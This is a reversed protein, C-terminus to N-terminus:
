DCSNTVLESHGISRNQNLQQLQQWRIAEESQNRLIKALMRFEGVKVTVGTASKAGFAKLIKARDMEVTRQSVALRSAITKNPLGNILLDLVRQRRPSLLEMTQRYEEYKGNLDFQTQRRHVALSVFGALTEFSFPRNLLAITGPNVMELAYNAQDRDFILVTPLDLPPFSWSRKQPVSDHSGSLSFVLCSSALFLRDSSIRNHTTHFNLRYGLRDTMGCYDRRLTENADVVSIIPAIKM